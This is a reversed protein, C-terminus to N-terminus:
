DLTFGARRFYEDFDAESNDLMHLLRAVAYDHSDAKHGDHDRAWPLIARAGDVIVYVVRDVLSGRYFFDALRLSTEPDPFNTSWEFSRKDPGHDDSCKFDMPMGFVVTVDIDPTYVAVSHHENVDLHVPGGPTYSTAFTERYTPGPGPIMRWDTPQSKLILSRFEEFTM